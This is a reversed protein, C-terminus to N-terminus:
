DQPPPNLEFLPLSFQPASDRYLPNAVPVEAGFAPSVVVVSRSVSLSRSFSLYSSSCSRQPLLRLHPPQRCLHPHRRRGSTVQIRGSIIRGDTLGEIDHIVKDLPVLILISPTWSTKDMKIYCFKRFLSYNTSTPTEVNWSTYSMCSKAKIKIM